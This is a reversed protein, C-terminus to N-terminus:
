LPADQGSAIYSQNLVTFYSNIQMATGFALSIKQIVMIFGDTIILILLQISIHLVITHHM